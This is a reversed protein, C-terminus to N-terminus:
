VKQTPSRPPATKNCGPTESFSRLAPSKPGCSHPRAYLRATSHSERPPHDTRFNKGQMMLTLIRFEFNGGKNGIGGDTEVETASEAETRSKLKPAIHFASKCAASSPSVKSAEIRERPSRRDRSQERDSYQPIPPTKERALVERFRSHQERRARQREDPHHFWQLPRAARAFSSRGRPEHSLRNAM